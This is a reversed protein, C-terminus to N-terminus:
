LTLDVWYPDHDSVDSSTADAAVLGFRTSAFGYDLKNAGITSEGSRACCGEGENFIGSAGGGYASRYMVDLENATPVANFDGGVFIPVTQAWSQGISAVQAAQARRASVAASSSGNTLHTACAAIDPSSLHVCVMSRQELSSPTTLQYGYATHSGNRFVLANGYPQGNGCTVSGSQQFYVTYNALQSDLTSAQSRCVENLSVVLPQRPTRNVISRNIADVVAGTSGDNCVNGCMNFQLFTYTTAAQAPASISCVAMITSAVLLLIRKM